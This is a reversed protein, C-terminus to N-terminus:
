QTLYEQLNGEDYALMLQHMHKKIKDQQKQQSETLTSFQVSQKNLFASDKDRDIKMFLKKAQNLNTKEM